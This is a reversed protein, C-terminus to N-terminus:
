KGLVTALEGIHAVIVMSRKMQSHEQSTAVWKTLFSSAGAGPVGFLLVPKRTNNLAEFAALTTRKFLTESEAGFLCISSRRGRAAHVKTTATTATKTTTTTTTTTAAAKKLTDPANTTAKPLIPLSACRNVQKQVSGNKQKGRTSGRRKKKKRQKEKKRENENEEFDENRIETQEAEIVYTSLLQFMEQEDKLGIYEQIARDEEEQDQEEETSEKSNKSQKKKPGDTEEDMSYDTDQLIKLKKMIITRGHDISSGNGGCDRHYTFFRKINFEIWRDNLMKQFSESEERMAVHEMPIGSAAPHSGTWKLERIRTCLKRQLKVRFSEVDDHGDFIEGAKSAFILGKLHSLARDQTRAPLEWQPHLKTKSKVSPSRFFFFCNEVGKPGMMDLPILFKQQVEMEMLSLGCGNKSGAVVHPNMKSKSTVWPHITSFRSDGQINSRPNVYGYRDGIICVFIDCAMVDRLCAKMIDKLNIDNFDLCSQNLKLMKNTIRRVDTFEVNCNILACFERVCPEVITEISKREEENDGFASSVYIRVDRPNKTRGVVAKMRMCAEVSDSRAVVANGADGSHLRFEFTGPVGPVVFDVTGKNQPPPQLLERDMWEEKKSKKGGGGGGIDYMGIWDRQGMNKNIAEETILRDFTVSTTSGCRLTRPCSLTSDGRRIVFSIAQSKPIKGRQAFVVWYRDETLGKPAFASSTSDFTVVSNNRGAVVSGRSVVNKPDLISELTGPTLALHKQERIVVICDDAHVTQQNPTSEPQEENLDDAGDGEGMKNKEITKHRSPFSAQYSIQVTDGLLYTDSKSVLTVHVNSDRIPPKHKLKVLTERFTERLEPETGGVINLCELASVSAEEYNLHRVNSALATMSKRLQETEKSALLIGDRKHEKAYRRGGSRLKSTARTVTSSKNLLSDPVVMHRLKKLHILPHNMIEQEEARLGAELYLMRLKRKLRMAEDSGLSKVRCMKVFSEQLKRVSYHVSEEKAQAQNLPPLPVPKKIKGWPSAHTDYQADDLERQHKIEFDLDNLAALEVQHLHNQFVKSMKYDITHVFKEAAIKAEEGELIRTFPADETATDSSTCSWGGQSAPDPEMTDFVRNFSRISSHFPLQQRDFLWVEGWEPGTEKLKSSM